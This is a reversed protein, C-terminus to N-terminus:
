NYSCFSFTSLKILIIVTMEEESGDVAQQLWNLTVRFSIKRRSKNKYPAFPYADSCYTKIVVFLIDM